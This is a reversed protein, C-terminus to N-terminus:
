AVSAIRKAEDFVNKFINDIFTAVDRVNFDVTCNYPQNFVSGDFTAVFLNGNEIAKLSAALTVKNVELLDGAHAAIYASLDLIGESGRKAGELVGKASEFATAATGQQITTLGAQATQLAIYVASTSINSLTFEAATLLNRGTTQAASLTGTAVQWATYQAGYQLGNLTQQATQFAIYATGYTVTNVTQQAASISAAGAQQAAILATQTTNRAIAVSSTQFGNVIAQCASLVGQATKMSVWAGAVITGWYEVNGFYDSWSAHDIKYQYTNITNQLSNVTNQANNLDSYAKGFSNNYDNIAKDANAQAQSIQVYANNKANNLANQADRVVNNYDSQAQVVKNRADNLANDYTAKANNVDNQASQVKADWAAKQDAVNQTCQALYAGADAQAKDLAEKAPTYLALYAQEADDVQKQADEISVDAASRADNIKQVVTTKIYETLDNDFESYFSFDLNAPDSFSGQTQAKITYKLLNLFNQELDFTAGKNSIDLYISESIDLFEFAGDILVSQKETTLELDFKANGGDAGHVKLPGLEIADLEGKAVVGSENFLTYVNIRKDFLILDAAFSFGPEFNITGISGGTPACYLKLEELDFFNPVDEVNISLGTITSAFSVLNQPSLKAIEGMLIEHTPDESISVAMQGSIDGLVIGGAFGFESPLGTTLFEAYIIGLQLALEPGIQLGNVGFPNTWYGKMTASGRADAIGIELVLDFHLPDTQKPVIVDMGFVLQLAPEPALVIAIRMPDCSVSNGLQLRTDPIEVSIDTTNGYHASLVLGTKKNHTLTTLAPIEELVASLQLGQKVTFDFDPDQTNGDNSSYIFAVKSFKLSDVFTDKAQPFVTSLGFSEAHIAAYVLENTKSDAGKEYAVKCDLTLGEIVAEGMLSFESTKGSAASYLKMDLETKTIDVPGITLDDLTGTFAVGDASLEALATVTHDYVKVSGGISLGQKLEGSDLTGDATALGIFVDSFTIDFSPLSLTDNNFYKFLDNLDNFTFEPSSAKIGTFASSIKGDFNFTHGAPKFDASLEIDNEGGVNFALKLNDLVLKEIGFLGSISDITAVVNLKGDGYTVTTELQVPTNGLKNITLTGTVSVTFTWKGDSQALEVNLAASNLVIGDTLPLLFTVASTLRVNRPTIKQSIDEGSTDIIGSLLLGTDCKMFDRLASLPQQDMRLTGTFNLENVPTDDGTETLQISVDDFVFLSNADSVFDKFIEDFTFNDEAFDFMVNNQDKGVISNASVATKGLVDATASFVQPGDSQPPPIAKVRVKDGGGASKIRKVKQTLDVKAPALNKLKVGHIKKSSATTQQAVQPNAKNEMINTKKLLLFFNVSSQISIFAESYWMLSQLLTGSPQLLV